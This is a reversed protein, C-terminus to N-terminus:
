FKLNDDYLAEHLCSPSLHERQNIVIGERRFNELVEQLESYAKWRPGFNNDPTMYKCLRALMWNRTQTLGNSLEYQRPENYFGLLKLVDKTDLLCAWSWPDGAKYPGPLSRQSAMEVFHLILRLWNKILFPDKCGDGEIIRFEITKRKGESRRWQDTNMTYYKCDGVASIIDHPSLHIDTDFIDKMALFQCYRNCKRHYPVMDLFIPECKVWYVIIAAVQEVSLDAVEVHVHVSCRKDVVIKPEKKYGEVVQCVKRIGRWNRYIPTCVELGCSSDPKIVWVNNENTHEYPRWEVNDDTHSKTLAVVYDTGAPKEKEGGAPRNKGDFACIELEVGFRRNSNFSLTPLKATIPEGM